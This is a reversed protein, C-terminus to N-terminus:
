IVSGIRGDSASGVNISSNKKTSKIIPVRYKQILLSKERYIRHVLDRHRVQAEIVSGCTDFESSIREYQTLQAYLEDISMRRLEEETLPTLRIGLAAYRDTIKQPNEGM